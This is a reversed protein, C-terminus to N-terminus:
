LEWDSGALWSSIREARSTTLFPLHTFCLRISTAPSIQRIQRDFTPTDDLLSYWARVTTDRALKRKADSM